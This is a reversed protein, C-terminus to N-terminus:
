PKTISDLMFNAENLKEELKRLEEATYTSKGKKIEGKLREIKKGIAENQEACRQMQEEASMMGHEAAFVPMATFLGTVLLM